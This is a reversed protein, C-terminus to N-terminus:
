VSLNDLVKKTGEFGPIEDVTDNYIEKVIDPTSLREDYGVWNKRKSYIFVTNYTKSEVVRVVPEIKDCQSCGDYVRIKQGIKLKLAENNNNNNMKM